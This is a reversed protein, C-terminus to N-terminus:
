ECLDLVLKLYRTNQKEVRSKRVLYTSSGSEALICPERSCRQLVVHQVNIIGALVAHSDIHLRRLLRALNVEAVPRDDNRIRLHLINSRCELLDYVIEDRAPRAVACDSLQIKNAACSDLLDACPVVALQWSHLPTGVFDDCLMGYPVRRRRRGHAAPVRRERVGLQVLDGRRQSTM